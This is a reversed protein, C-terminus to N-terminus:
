RGLVRCEAWVCKTYSVWSTSKRNPINLVHYAFYLYVNKQTLSCNTFYEINRCTKDIICHIKLIHVSIQLYVTNTYIVFYSIIYIIHYVIHHSIHYSINYLKVDLITIM